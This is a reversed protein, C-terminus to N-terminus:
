KEEIVIVKIEVELNHDLKIKLPYEGVGEIPQTLEIQNKKINFGMEKLKESIKQPNISEFLQEKDGIKVQIMVELGDLSSALVQFNKLGEEAKKEEVEKQKEVWALIEKTVPKALGKPILLNRAFGTKVEKIEYKKGIKEVDQLFIVKM